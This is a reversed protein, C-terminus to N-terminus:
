EVDVSRSSGVRMAERRRRQRDNICTRCQRWGRHVVTNEPSFAHGRKCHTAAAMRESQATLGVPQPARRHNESATVPELHDPNCCSRVRCLHDLQLGAPIDGVLLRYAIRHVYRSGFAPGEGIFTGYGAPVTTSTWLWCGGPGTKDVKAWFRAESPVPVRKRDTSGTRRWRDYHLLCWGRARAERECGGISCTRKAM